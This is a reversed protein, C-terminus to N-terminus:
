RERDDPLVIGPLTDSGDIPAHEDTDTESARPETDLDDEFPDPDVAEADLPITANRKERVLAIAGESEVEFREPFAGRMLAHLQRRGFELGAHQMFAEIDQRIEHASSYRASPDPALMRMVIAEMEAPVRAHRSPPDIAGRRIALMAERDDDREYARKNTLMEWLCVGLAFLDSRMDIAKGQAQEPSLYALKGKVIGDRTESVRNAAKALGFDIVKVEGGFSILINGPSVDRHIVGLPRGLPDTAHHAHYLADAVQVGLHCIANLPLRKRREAMRGLLTKLSHGDVFEMAIFYDEGERGLDFIQAICPHSLQV